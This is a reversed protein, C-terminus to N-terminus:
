GGNRIYRTENESEEIRTGDSLYTIQKRNVLHKHLKDVKGNMSKMEKELSDVKFNQLITTNFNSLETKQRSIKGVIEPDISVGTNKLLENFDPPTLKSFDDSNMAELLKHYKKVSRRNNVFEGDELEMVGNPSYYKEGGESHRNGKIYGGKEFTTSAAEIKGRIALFGAILATVQALGLIAGVFPVGSWGQIVNVTSVLLTSAIQASDIYAQEQALKKKQAQLERQQALDKDRQAKLASLQQQHISLNNALGQRNLELDKDIANELETIRDNESQIAAENFDIQSQIREQNAQFAEDIISNVNSFFDAIASNFDDASKSDVGFVKAWTIPDKELEKKASKVQRGLSAIRADLKAVQRLTEEDDGFGITDLLAERSLKAALLDAELRKENRIKEARAENVGALEIQEILAKSEDAQAQIKENTIKLQGNIFLRQNREKIEKESVGQEIWLKEKAAIDAKLLDEEKKFGSELIEISERQIQLKLALSQRAATTEINAKLKDFQAQVEIPLRGQAELGARLEALQKLNQEKQLRIKEEGFALDIDSQDARDALSKFANRLEVELALLDKGRKTAGDKLIKSKESDLAKAGSNQKEGEVVLQQTLLSNTRIIEANREELKNNIEKTETELKRTESTVGGFNKQTDIKREVFDATEAIRARNAALEKENDEIEKLSIKRQEARIATKSKFEEDLLKVSQQQSLKEEEAQADKAAKEFAAQDKIGKLKNNNAEALAAAEATLSKKLIELRQKETEEFKNIRLQGSASLFENSKKTNDQLKDFEDSSLKLAESASLSESTLSSFLAVLATIGIIALGVPGLVFNMAAGFGKAAVSGINMGVAAEKSAVGQIIKAEGDAISAAANEETVVTNVKTAASTIGLVAGLNKFTDGLKLIENLGQSLALAAQVKLLARQVDESKTGFLAMAGEAAAFGGAVGQALQGIIKFKEQPNLAQVRRNLNDMKETLNALNQQASIAQPSNEGFQEGLAFAADRALKIQSRLSEFRQEIVPSPAPTKKIEATLTQVNKTTQGIQLAYKQQDAPNTASKSAEQLKQLVSIQGKLAVQAQSSGNVVSQAQKIAADALINIQSIAEKIQQTSQSNKTAAGIASIASVTKDLAKNFEEQNLVNAKVNAQFQQSNQSNTDRIKELGSVTKDISEAIKSYDSSLNLQIDM